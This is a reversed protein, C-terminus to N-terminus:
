GQMVPLLKANCNLVQDPGVHLWQQKAATIRRFNVWFDCLWQGVGLYRIRVCCAIDQRLSSTKAPTENDKSTIIKNWCIDPNRNKKANQLSKDLHLQWSASCAGDRLDEGDIFKSEYSQHYTEAQCDRPHLGLAKFFSVNQGVASHSGDDSRYWPQLRKQTM